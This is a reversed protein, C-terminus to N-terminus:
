QSAQKRAKIEALLRDVEDERDLQALREEVDGAALDTKARELDDDALKRRVRDFAKAGSKRGAAM